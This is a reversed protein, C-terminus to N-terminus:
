AIHIALLVWLVADLLLGATFLRQRLMLRNSTVHVFAHAVRTAVFLWAVILAALGAGGTLMLLICALFFLVPLEFQNVLNRAATASPEPEIMPVLYDRAKATGARVAGFRRRGVLVYVVNILLVQAIVPWLIATHLMM